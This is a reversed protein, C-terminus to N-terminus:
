LWCVKQCFIATNSALLAGKQGARLTWHLLWVFISGARSLTSSLPRMTNQM